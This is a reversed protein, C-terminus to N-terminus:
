HRFNRDPNILRFDDGGNDAGDPLGDGGGQTPGGRPGGITPNEDGDCSQTCAGGEANACNGDDSTADCGALDEIDSYEFETLMGNTGAMGEGAILSVRVLTADTDLLTLAISSEGAADADDAVIELDYLELDDASDAVVARADSPAIRAKRGTDYAWTGCDFGGFIAVDAADSDLRLAETYDGSTACAYVHKDDTAAAEIAKSLTAFPASQTGDGDDDNGDPSVFVGHDNTIACSDEDPTTADCTTGGGGASGGSGGSGSSGGTGETGAGGGEGGSAPSGAAGGNSPTGGNNTAGASGPNPGEYPGCTAIKKCDEATNACSVLFLPIFTFLCQYRM